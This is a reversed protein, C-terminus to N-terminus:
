SHNTSNETDPKESQSDRMQAMFAMGEVFTLFKEQGQENLTQVAKTVSNLIEKAQESM